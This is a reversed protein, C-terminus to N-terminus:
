VTKMYYSVCVLSFLIFLKIYTIFWLLLAVMFERERNVQFYFMLFSIKVKPSREQKMVKGRDGM